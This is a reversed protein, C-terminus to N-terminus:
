AIESLRHEVLDKVWLKVVGPQTLGKLTAPDEITQLIIRASDRSPDGKLIDIMQEVADESIIGERTRIKENFERKRSQELLKEIDENFLYPDEKCALSYAKVLIDEPIRGVAMARIAPEIDYFAMALLREQSLTYRVYASRVKSNSCRYLPTLGGSDVTVLGESIMYVSSAFLIIGLVMLEPFQWLWQFDSSIVSNGGIGLLFTVFGSLGLLILILGEFTKGSSFSTLTYNEPPKCMDVSM